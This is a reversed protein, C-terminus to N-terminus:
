FSNTDYVMLMLEVKNGTIRSLPAALSDSQRDALARNGPWALGSCVLERHGGM